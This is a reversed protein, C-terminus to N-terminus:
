LGSNKSFASLNHLWGLTNRADRRAEEIMAFAESCSHRRFIACGDGQYDTDSISVDVYFFSGNIRRFIWLCQAGDPHFAQMIFEDYPYQASAASVGQSSRAILLTLSPPQSARM